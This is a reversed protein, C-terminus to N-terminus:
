TVDIWVDGDIANTPEVTGIWLVAAYGVPRDTDATAGHNVYGMVEPPVARDINPIMM